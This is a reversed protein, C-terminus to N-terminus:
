QCLEFLRQKVARREQLRKRWPMWAGVVASALGIAGLGVVIWEGAILVVM